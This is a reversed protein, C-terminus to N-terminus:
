SLDAQAADVARQAEDLTSFRGVEIGGRATFYEGVYQDHINLSVVGDNGNHWHHISHRAPRWNSMPEEDIEMMQRYWQEDRRKERRERLEDM